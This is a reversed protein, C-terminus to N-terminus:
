LQETGDTPSDSETMAPVETEEEEEEEEFWPAVGAEEKEVGLRKAQWQGVVSAASFFNWGRVTGRCFYFDDVVGAWINKGVLNNKSVNLFQNAVDFSWNGESNDGWIAVNKGDKDTALRVWTEAIDAENSDMVTGVLWESGLFEAETLMDYEVYEYEDDDDEEDDDEGAVSLGEASSMSSALTIRLQGQSSTTSIPNLKLSSKASCFSNRQPTAYPTQIIWGECLIASLLVGAVLQLLITTSTYMPM